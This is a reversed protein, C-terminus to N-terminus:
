LPQKIYCKVINLPYYKGALYDDISDLIAPSRLRQKDALIGEYTMWFARVIGADLNTEITQDCVSGSFNARFYTTENDGNHWM